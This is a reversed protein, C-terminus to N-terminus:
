ESCGMTPGRFSCPKGMMVGSPEGHAADLTTVAAPSGGDASVRQLGGSGVGGSFVITGDDTWAGFGWQSGNIKEVLTVPSGGRLGIKKLYGGGTFFAVWQGDPSFFPQHADETGPLDRVALGGLTRVHLAIRAPGPSPDVNPGVFAIATADPSLAISSNPVPGFSVPRNTPLVISLRQPAPAVPRSVTWVVLAAGLGVVIAAGVVPIARRGFARPDGAVAPIDHGAM